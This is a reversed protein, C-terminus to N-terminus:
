PDHPVQGPSHDTKKTSKLAVFPSKNKFPRAKFKNEAPVSDQYDNPSAVQQPARLNSGCSSSRKSLLVSM